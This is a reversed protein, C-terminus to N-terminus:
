AISIRNRGAEKARYLQTDADKLLSDWGGNRLTGRALGFSASVRLTADTGPLTIATREIAAKLMQAVRTAADLDDTMLLIAFEEGGFRVLIDDARLWSKLLGAFHRLVEDGAAHGHRDNIRKFHDIDVLMLCAGRKDAGRARARVFRDLVRRNWLGTLPDREAERQLIATREERERLSDRLWSLAESLRHMEHSPGLPPLPAQSGHEALDIIIARAVLLPRLVSVRITRLLSGLVLLSAFTAISIWALHTLAQQRRIEFHRAIQDIFVASLHEISNMTAVYRRTLDRADITYQGSQRGEAIVRDLLALGSGFYDTQITDLLAPAAASDAFLGRQALLLRRLELVRGRASDSDALDGVPIPQRAIVPAIIHSVTRGAYDRLDVIMAGVTEYATLQHSGGASTAIAIVIADQFADRAAIMGLVAQQVGQTTRAGPPLAAIHDVDRRASRLRAAARRFLAAPPLRVRGDGTVGGTADGPADGGAPLPPAALRAMAQDTAHRADQLAQRAAAQDDPPTSMLINAPAREHSILIATDLVQRFYRIDAADRSTQRYVGYAPLILAVAFGLVCFGVVLSAHWIKRELGTQNRDTAEQRKTM